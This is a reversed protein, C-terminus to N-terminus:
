HFIHFCFPLLFDAAADAAAYRRCHVHRRLPAQRCPSFLYPPPMLPMPMADFLMMADAAFAIDIILAFRRIAAAFRLPTVPSAAAAADKAFFSFRRRLM